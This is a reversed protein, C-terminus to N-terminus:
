NINSSKITSNNDEKNLNERVACYASHISYIFYVFLCSLINSCSTEALAESDSQFLFTKLFACFVFTFVFSLLKSVVYRKIASSSDRGFDELGLGLRSMSTALGLRSRSKSCFSSVLGLSSRESVSVLCSVKSVLRKCYKAFIKSVLNQVNPSSGLANCCLHFRDPNERGSGAPYIEFDNGTLRGTSRNRVPGTLRM